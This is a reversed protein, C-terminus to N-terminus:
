KMEYGFLRFDPEYVTNILSITEKSLDSVTFRKENKNNHVDLIINMHYRKMLLDFEEALTEFKLVHIQIHESNDLYKYQEAYHGGMKSRNLIRMQIYENMEYVTSTNPDHTIHKWKGGGWKCHYESLMRDYPNRVIAFWDYKEKVHNQILPFFYHHHATVHHLASVRYEPHFRGFLTEKQLACDEISTGGTKTIHIFKLPKIM